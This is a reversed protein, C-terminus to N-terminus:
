PNRPQIIEWVPDLAPNFTNAPLTPNNRPRVFDNRMTSGDAFRIETFRLDFTAPDFGVRILTMLRRASASRPELHLSHLGNTTTSDLLRFRAELETRSRPFGAEILALADRWPGTHDAHLPYKEVRKLLPYIVLMQEPQRVAITRPPDGLEWRFQNPAAFWVRGTATLPQVLSKLNRTQTVDASWTQISTQHSLWDEVLTTADAARSQSPAGIGLSLLAALLTPVLLTTPRAAPPSLQPSPHMISAPSSNV